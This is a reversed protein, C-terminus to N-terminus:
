KRSGVFHNLRILGWGVVSILLIIAVTVITLAATMEDVGAHLLGLMLRPVTDMGPPLVMQSASLEGFCFAFSILWCGFVAPLNALVGFQFFQTMAGAGDLQINELADNAISRFLFWVVLPALPWCFWGSALTPACITRNYIWAIFSGDLSTICKTIATGMLPGPIACSLALSLVFIIQWGLSRRALWSIPLALLMICTSATAAITASWIFESTYERCARSLTTTCQSLSYGVTPVSDVSEVFYCCRIILNGLPILIFVIMLLTGVLSRAFGAQGTTQPKWQGSSQESNTMNMFLYSASAALWGIMVITVWINLNGAAALEEASWNGPLANIQGLSFGLYIQEALTGVQYLDTAAIERACVIMTWLASLIILPWLRKFTVNWFIGAQDTDLLAQEEYVRRGISMGLLLLVAVQPAAAVGHIWTAAQWGSLLPMLVQGEASTLWGLRGFAADWTSVHLFVPVALLSIIALLVLRCIFGRGMAVWALSGGLPIAILSAGAGLLFTRTAIDGDLQNASLWFFLLLCFTAVLWLFLFVKNATRSNM